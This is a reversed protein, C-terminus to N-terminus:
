DILDFELAPLLLLSTSWIARKAVSFRESEFFIMSVTVHTRISLAHAGAPQSACMGGQRPGHTDGVAQQGADWPDREAELRLVCMPTVGRRGGRGTVTHLTVSWAASSSRRRWDIRLISAMDLVRETRSAIWPAKAEKVLPM